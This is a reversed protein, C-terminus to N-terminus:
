REQKIGHYENYVDRKAMNREAATKKIAEKTQMGDNIYGDVQDKISIDDWKSIDAEEEESAGEIVIVFEGKPNVEEYM